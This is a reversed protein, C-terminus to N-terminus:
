SVQVIPPYLEAEVSIMDSVGTQLLEWYLLTMVGSPSNEQEAEQWFTSDAPSWLKFQWHEQTHM